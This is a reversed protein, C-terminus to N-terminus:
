SPYGLSVALSMVGKGLTRVDFPWLEIRWALQTLYMFSICVAEGSTRANLSWLEVSFSDFTLRGCSSM